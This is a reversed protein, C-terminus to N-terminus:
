LMDYPDIDITLEVGAPARLTPLVARVLQHLVAPSPSQLQFHFRYYGKLRFIPAEAPGLFRVEAPGGGPARLRALAEQFAVGVREAFAEVVDRERSRVILRALRQYPPYDHARRHTLEGVV